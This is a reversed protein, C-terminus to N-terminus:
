GSTTLLSFDSQKNSDGFPPVVTVTDELIGLDSIYMNSNSRDWIILDAKYHNLGPKHDDMVLAFLGYIESAVLDLDAIPISFALFLGYVNNIQSKVWDNKSIAWNMIRSHGDFSNPKTNSGPYSISDSKRFDELLDSPVEELDAVYVYKSYEVKLIAMDDMLNNILFLKLRNNVVGIYVHIFQPKQDGQTEAVGGDIKFMVGQNLLTVAEDYYDNINNWDAISKKITELKM